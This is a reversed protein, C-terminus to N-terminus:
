DDLLSDYDEVTVTGERVRGDPLAVPVPQGFPDILLVRDAGIADMSCAVQGLLLVQDTGSLELFDETYGIVVEGSTTVQAVALVPAQTLPHLLLSRLDGRRDAPPGAALAVMVAEPTQSTIPEAVRELGPGNVFCVATERTTITESPAPSATRLAGSPLPEAVEQLGVGCGGLLLASLALASARAPRASREPGASGAGRSPM